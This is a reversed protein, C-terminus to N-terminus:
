GVVFTPKGASDAELVGEFTADASASSVQGSSDLYSFTVTFDAFYDWRDSSSVHTETRERWAVTAPKVAGLEAAEAVLERPCSDGLLSSASCADVLDAIQAAAADDVDSRLRPEATLGGGLAEVGPPVVESLQAPEIPFEVDFAPSDAGEPDPTGFGLPDVYHFTYMGPLAVFQVSEDPDGVSVRGNVEFSGPARFPAVSLAADLWGDIKASDGSDVVSVQIKRLEDGLSYEVMIYVVGPDLEIASVVKANSPTAIADAYFGEDLVESSLGANDTVLAAIDGTHGSELAEFFTAVVAREAAYDVSSTSCGSLALPAAAIVAAFRLPRAIM